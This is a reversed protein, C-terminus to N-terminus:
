EVSKIWADAMGEGRIKKVYSIASAKDAFKKVYVYNYQQSNSYIWNSESYGNKRLRKAENTAFDDYVFTGTIIYFGKQINGKKSSMYDKSINNVILVTEERTKTWAPNIAAKNKNTDTSSSSNNNSKNNNSSNNNSYNSSNNNANNNTVDGNNGNNGNNTSNNNQQTAQQEQKKKVEELNANLENIKKQNEAVIRLNNELETKLSDMRHEYALNKAEQIIKSSDSEAEEKKNKGFRFNVMVEHSMGAYTSIKGTIFEYTYGIDLQKHLSIGANASVAYNSKYTAGLWFKNQWIFNLNGEYQLPANPVIRVLAQPAISIGKEESITFRYKISTMFHRAHRYFSQVSTTDDVFNIKNGLVQPISFNLDLDKWIFAFGANADLITKQQSSEFLTIDSADEAIVKSYDISQNVVGASLGFLIKTDDNIKLHYSYALSGGFRRNIGKKDSILNLGIGVKDNNIAGDITFINLQPSNNFSTWQSRNIMMAETNGTAGAYAPNYVFPKYFFHNYMGVQQAFSNAAFLTFISLIYIYNKRM